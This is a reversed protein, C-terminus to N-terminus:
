PLVSYASILALKSAATVIQSAGTQVGRYLPELSPHSSAEM